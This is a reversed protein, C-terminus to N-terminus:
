RDVLLFDEYRLNFSHIALIKHINAVAAITSLKNIAPKETSRALWNRSRQLFSTIKNQLCGAVINPRNIILQECSTKKWKDRAQQKKETKRNWHSLHYSLRALRYNALEKGQGDGAFV